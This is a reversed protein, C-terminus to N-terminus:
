TKVGHPKWHLACVKHRITIKDGSSYHHHGASFAYTPDHPCSSIPNAYNQETLNINNLHTKWQDLVHKAKPGFCYILLSASNAGATGLVYRDILQDYGKKLYSNNVSDVKKGEAIHSFTRKKILIDSHGGSNEDHSADFGSRRLQRCIDANLADESYGQIRNKDSELEKIIVDITSYLINIFEDHSQCFLLRFTPPLQPNEVELDLIQQATFSRPISIL